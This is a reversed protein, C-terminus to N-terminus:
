LTVKTIVINMEPGMTIFRPNKIDISESLGTIMPIDQFDSRILDLPIDHEFTATCKWVNGVPNSSSLSAETKIPYTIDQPQFRLCLLQIV